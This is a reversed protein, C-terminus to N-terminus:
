YDAGLVDDVHVRSRGPNFVRERIKAQPDVKEPVFEKPANINVCLYELSTRAHSTYDHIPLSIESTAQSTETRQPYRAYKINELWADCRDTDNVEIGKQLWLKTRERRNVFKNAEPKTQVYIGADAMIQRTSSIDKSQFSRKSVDPDGYHIAKKYNRFDNIAALDDNEYTFTSDIPHGALPLYFQIPKNVNEYADIIRIKGNRKNLQAVTISTGDLGLDWSFFIPWAPDYPFDGVEADLIEPYVRGEVSGEWNIMIERAFDEESRRSREAELWDEDKRPDLEYTLTEVHIQEGDRGFRLNRAKSPGIGPTTLVIRCKTTDATAGWVATANEWFAFEDLLIAKQRGGRSFNPNSSEGGIVNGNEPNILSMYNMHKEINFGNPLLEKPLRNIFYELKGFLSEEKNSLDSSGGRRNDVYDEKRSGVLFNSGPVFRWYWFILALLTYTAGMERCKEVFIDEGNDIAKRMTTVLNYQFPFLEFRFHYPEEKPNFTYLFNSIFYQPDNECVSLEKM